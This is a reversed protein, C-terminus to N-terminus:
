FIIKMYKEFGLGLCGLSRSVRSFPLVDIPKVGGVTWRGVKQEELNGFVAAKSACFILGVRPHVLLVHDAIRWRNPLPKDAPVQAGTEQRKNSQHPTAHFRMFGYEDM